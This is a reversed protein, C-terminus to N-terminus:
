EKYETWNKRFSNYAFMRKNKKHVFIYTGNLYPTYISRLDKYRIEPVQAACLYIMTDTISNEIDNAIANNM